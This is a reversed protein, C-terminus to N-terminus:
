LEIIENNAESVHVSYRQLTYSTRSHAIFFSAISSALLLLLQCHLRVVFFDGYLYIFDYKATGCLISHIVSLRHNLTGHSQSPTTPQSTAISAFINYIFAAFYVVAVLLLLLYSIIEYVCWVNRKTRAERRHMMMNEHEFMLLRKTNYVACCIVFDIASLNFVLMPFHTCLSLTSVSFSSSPFPNKSNFSVSVFM